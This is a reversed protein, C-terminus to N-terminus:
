FPLEQLGVGWRAAAPTALQRELSRGPWSRSCPPLHRTQGQAIRASGKPRSSSLASFRSRTSRHTTSPPAADPGSLLATPPALPPWRGHPAAQAAGCGRLAAVLGPRACGKLRGGVMFPCQACGVDLRRRGGDTDRSVQKSIGEAQGRAVIRHKPARSKLSGTPRAPRLRGASPAQQNAHAKPGAWARHRM